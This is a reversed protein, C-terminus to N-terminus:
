QDRNEAGECQDTQDSEEQADGCSNCRGGGGGAAATSAREEAAEQRVPVRERLQQVEQKVLALASVLYVYVHKCM